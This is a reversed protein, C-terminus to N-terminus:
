QPVCCSVTTYIFICIVTHRTTHRAVTACLVVCHYVYLYMDSHTTNHPASSHCVVRCVTIYISGLKALKTLMQNLEILDAM